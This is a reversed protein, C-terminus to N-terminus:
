GVPVGLQRAAERLAQQDSPSGRFARDADRYAAAAQDAQGLVMRARM